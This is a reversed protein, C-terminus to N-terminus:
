ILRAVVAHRATYYGNNRSSDSTHQGQWLKYMIYQSSDRVTNICREKDSLRPVPLM